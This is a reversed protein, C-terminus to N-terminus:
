PKYWESYMQMIMEALVKKKACQNTAEIGNDKLVRSITARHCGFEWALEYTSKGQQYKVIITRSEVESLTKTVSCRIKRYFQPDYSLDTIFPDVNTNVPTAHYEKIYKAVILYNKSYTQSLEM